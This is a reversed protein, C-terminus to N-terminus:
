RAFDASSRCADHAIVEFRQVPVSGARVMAGASTISFVEAFIAFGKGTQRSWDLSTRILRAKSPCYTKLLGARRGIGCPLMWKSRSFENLEVRARNGMERGPASRFSSILGQSHRAATPASRSATGIAGHIMTLSASPTSSANAASGRLFAARRIIAAGSKASRPHLDAEATERRYKRPRNGTSGPTTSIPYQTASHNGLNITSVKTVEVRSEACSLKPAIRMSGTM